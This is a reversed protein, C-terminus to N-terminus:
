SVKKNYQMSSICLVTGLFTAVGTITQTIEDAYPFGWVGALLSYLTASAPLVIMVVWKLVDYVKNSMKM